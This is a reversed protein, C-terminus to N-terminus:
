VLENEYSNMIKNSNGRVNQFTWFTVIWPMIRAMSYVTNRNKHHENDHNKDFEVTEVHCELDLVYM